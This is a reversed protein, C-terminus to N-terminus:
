TAHSTGQSMRSERLRAWMNEQMETRRRLEPCLEVQQRKRIDKKRLQSHAPFLLLIWEPRCFEEREHNTRKNAWRCPITLGARSNFWRKHDPGRTAQTEDFQLYFLRAPIEQRSFYLCFTGLCVIVALQDELKWGSRELIIQVRHM